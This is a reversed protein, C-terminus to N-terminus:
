LQIIDCTFYFYNWMRANWRRRKFFIDAKKKWPDVQWWHLCFVSSM